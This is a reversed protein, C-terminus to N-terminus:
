PMRRGRLGEPARVVKLPGWRNQKATRDVMVGQALREVFRRGLGSAVSQQRPHRRTVNEGGSGAAHGGPRDWLGLGHADGALGAHPRWGRAREGGM